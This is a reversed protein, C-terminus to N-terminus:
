TRSHRQTNPLIAEAEIKKLMSVVSSLEEEQSSARSSPRYLFQRPEYQVIGADGAKRPLVHLHFHPVSQGALEGENWAFNFGEACFARALMACVKEKLALIDKWEDLTLDESRAVVRKPCVLTHGPVIPMRNLFAMALGNEAVTREPVTPDDVFSAAYANRNLNGNMITAM